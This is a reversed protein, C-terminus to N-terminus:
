WEASKAAPRLVALLSKMARLAIVRQADFGLLTGEAVALWIGFMQEREKSTIL